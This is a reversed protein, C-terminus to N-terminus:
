PQKAKLVGTIQKTARLRGWIGMVIGFIIAGNDVIQGIQDPVGTLDKAADIGMMQLVIVVISIIPAVVGVSQVAAKTQYM